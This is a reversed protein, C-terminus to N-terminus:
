NELWMRGSLSKSIQYSTNILREDPSRFHEKDQKDFQFCAKFHRSEHMRWDAQAGTCHDFQGLNPYSNTFNHFYNKTLHSSQWPVPTRELDFNKLKLTLSLTLFASALNNQALILLTVLTCKQKTHTRHLLLPALSVLSSQIDDNKNCPAVNAM